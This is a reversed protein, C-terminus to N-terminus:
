SEGAKRDYLTSRKAPIPTRQRVFSECEQITDFAHETTLGDEDTFVVKYPLEADRTQVIRAVATAKRKISSDNGQGSRM